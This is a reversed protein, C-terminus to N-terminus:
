PHSSIISPLTVPPLPRSLGIRLCLWLPQPWSWAVRKKRLVLAEAGTAELTVTLRLVPDQTNDEDLLIVADKVSGVVAHPQGLGDSPVRVVFRATM